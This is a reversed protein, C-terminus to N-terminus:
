PRSIVNSDASRLRGQLAAQYWRKAQDFNAFEIIVMRSPQWPAELVEVKGGRVVYKGGYQAVSSAGAKVYQAYGEADPIKADLIVYAAM